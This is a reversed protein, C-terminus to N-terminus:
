EAALALPEYADDRGEPREPIGLSRRVSDLPETWRDEWEVVDVPGSALGRAVGEAYVRQYDLLAFPYHVAYRAMAGALTLTVQLSLSAGLEGYHALRNAMTFSVAGIEGLPDAGYGSVLHIYDHYAIARFKWYQSPTETPLRGYYDHDLGYRVLFDHYARALTGPAHAALEPLGYSPALHKRAFVPALTTDALLARDLAGDADGAPSLLHELHPKLRKAMGVPDDCVHTGYEGLWASIGAIAERIVPDDPRISVLPPPAM